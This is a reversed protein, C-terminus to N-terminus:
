CLSFTSYIRGDDSNVYILYNGIIGIKYAMENLFDDKQIKLM